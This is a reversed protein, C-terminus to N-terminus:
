VCPTKLTPHLMEFYIGIDRIRLYEIPYDSVDVMEKEGDGERDKKWFEPCFINCVNLFVYM